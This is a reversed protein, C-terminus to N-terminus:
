EPDRARCIHVDTVYLVRASGEEALARARELLQAREGEPLTAVFSISRVRDVLGDPDLEQSHEFQRSELPGFLRTRDFAERWSRSRHRPVDGRHPELLADLAANLPDEARRENWILALGGDPRLVRHIEALAAVGDFWHFAQAVTVADACGDPLPIAEATGELAEVPAGILARMEALPEVAIVRACIAALQRTLKGTGAALDVVTRGEGLGLGEVLWELAAAPYGPRGREYAAATRAFGEAATRHLREAM